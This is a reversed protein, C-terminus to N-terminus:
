LKVIVDVGSDTKQVKLEVAYDNEIRAIAKQTAPCDRLAMVVQEKGARQAREISNAIATYLRDDMSVYSSVGSNGVANIRMIVELSHM